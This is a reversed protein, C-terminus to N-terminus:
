DGAVGVWCDRLGGDLSGLAEIARVISVGEIVEGFVVHRGNLQFTTRRTAQHPPPM